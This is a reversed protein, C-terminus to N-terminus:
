FKYEFTGIFVSNGDSKVGKHSFEYIAIVCNKDDKIDPIQELFCESYSFGDIM